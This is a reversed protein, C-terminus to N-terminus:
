ENYYRQIVLPLEDRSNVLIFGMSIIQKSRETEPRVDHYQEKHFALKKKNWPAYDSNAGYM